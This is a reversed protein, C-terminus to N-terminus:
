TLEILTVGDNATSEDRGISKVLPHHGFHERIAARLAGTGVGHIIRVSSLGAITADNLFGEIRELAEEVRVGLLNLESNVQRKVPRSYYIGDRTPTTQSRAPKDLQHVPLRARMTGLLVELTGGDDPPTIVEVPRPIGRLYVRDGASLQKLWDSRVSPPPKWDPSRLERRVQAVEKRVEKVTPPPMVPRPLPQELAREANRLRKTIEDVRQQIQHRAEEVIETKRDQVNALQEELEASRREALALAEEAERRVQEALHREEQLEKLLSEAQQHVPSLLARAREVIESDLGLRSAITLAYSRGPLGLTLRYTPALTRPDLEVSANIMGPQEQVFASVDRQHTTAVLTIGRQLSHSLIGKALAASEEPDTSTGLEDILVLSKDTAQEMIARLNQVHSSFTSLSQQISQQDGIDAYVGNFLSLTSETAPIHLGTQAMLTLLGITKLAVTKGGANPGTILLLSWGEGMKITIPVVEGELLPHRADMLWIYQREGEIVSSASANISLAYRAKAMALDLRALLELGLLLEESRAEVKASLSRLVREEEREEALRLERWRNGLGIAAMPEVFLTAGSDSDDHVIGPLRHKMESKVLLVMRGNRQTIIPEQLINHRQMRRVTRELSDVLRQHAARSEARLERLAPSASDLVEGSRGIVAALEKELERLVPLNQAMAGLGPTEKHRLLAARTGRTVKLTDHVDRLEEGTLIGGLAARQLAQRLDVAEALDIDSGRDLFTRAETTEQQRRAVEAPDYSPTLEFALERAPPFTTYGALRERVVHFELLRLTNERLDTPKNSAEPTNYETM